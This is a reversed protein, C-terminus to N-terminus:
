VILGFCVEFMFDTLYTLFDCFVVSCAVFYISSDCPKSAFALHQKLLANNAEIKWDSLSKGM